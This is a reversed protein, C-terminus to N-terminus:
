NQIKFKSNQIIKLPGAGIGDDIWRGNECYKVLEEGIWQRVKIKEAEPYLLHVNPGADLTFCVPISTEDRFQRIRNVINVTNPEILFYSPNSTMMLAHLGLAESETIDIFRDYDGSHLAKSIELINSMATEFRKGAYPHSEMLSHGARSSVGKEKSSVVLIADKMERFAPNVEFPVPIAFEDSSGAFGPVYGWLVYGGYVSRCASGSALRSLRSAEQLFEKRNDPLLGMHTFFDALCLGLASMSSASSAIGTSHPFTNSSSIKLHYHNLVPFKGTLSQLFGSIKKEFKEQKQGEFLFELSPEDKLDKEIFELSMETYAENLTMSLSPNAPIQVPKKGWYKVLAINSPSRWSITNLEFNL